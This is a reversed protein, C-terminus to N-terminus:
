AAERARIRTVSRPAIRLHEAIAVASWGRRTLILVAAERERPNLPPVRGFAGCAREVAIDDIDDPLRGRGAMQHGHVSTRPRQKFYCSGCMGRCEHRVFGERHEGRSRVMPRECVLCTETM